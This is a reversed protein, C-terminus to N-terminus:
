AAADKEIYSAQAADLERFVNGYLRYFNNAAHVILQQEQPEDIRNMLGKFFHMHKKDLEGHSKLYSFASDPLALTAQIKDAALLAMNISTGELVNVMGFFGLPNVRSVMDWAYTVMMETSFNPSSKRAKEKDYGCAAIDNLIWEQHGKEEDIYEAVAERLWEKSEPLRSGVAMLLPSTHKVHHYAQQLFAVYEAKTVNGALCHNIIPTDLLFQRSAITQQQLEDYFAM